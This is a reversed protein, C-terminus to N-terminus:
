QCYAVGERMRAPVARVAERTEVVVRKKMALFRSHFTRSVIRLDALFTAAARVGRLDWNGSETLRETAAGFGLRRRVVELLSPM